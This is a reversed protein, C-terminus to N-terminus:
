RDRRRHRGCGARRRASADVALAGPAANTYPHARACAAERRLWDAADTPSRRRSAGRSGCRRDAREDDGVGVPEHRDGLKRGRARDRAPVGPLAEAVSTTPARSVEVLSMAVFATLPAAELFAGAPRAALDPLKRLVRAQADSHRQAAPTDGGRKTLILAGVAILAPLAYSVVQLRLLAHWGRPMAALEFRCGPCTAGSSWGQWRAPRSSRHGPLHPRRRVSAQGRGSAVDGVARAPSSGSARLPRTCGRV